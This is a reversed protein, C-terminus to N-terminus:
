MYEKKDRYGKKTQNLCGTQQLNNKDCFTMLM